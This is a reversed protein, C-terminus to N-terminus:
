VVTVTLSPLGTCGAELQDGSTVPGVGEPTGTYLLDGSELTFVSSCYSILRAVTFIMDGTHGHQRVMGNVKLSLTLAQPDTVKDARILPGLPAFTDFGKAISWPKGNKKAESQLDRATMDLGVAFAMVHDLSDSERINRGGPGIVVVLEVEHHVNSTMAPLVVTGQTRVIATSPKLFVVPSRPVASGMEAAHRAYNRGICLVKGVHLREGTSPNILTM